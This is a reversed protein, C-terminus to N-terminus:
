TLFVPPVLFLAIAIVLCGLARLYAGSVLDVIAAMAFGGAATLCVLAIVVPLPITM